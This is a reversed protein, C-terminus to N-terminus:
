ASAPLAIVFVEIAGAEETDGDTVTIVLPEEEELVGAFTIIDDETLDAPSGGEGITAFKGAVTGDGIEFIPKTTGAITETCKVIILVARDGEDTGNPALVEIADQSTDDDHTAEAYGAVLAGVLAAAVDFSATLPAIKQDLAKGQSAALAKDNADSDLAAVIDAAGVYALGEVEAGDEFTLKGGIVWEDGGQKRYNKVNYGM